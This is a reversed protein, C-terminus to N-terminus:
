DPVVKLPVVASIDLWSVEVGVECPMALKLNMCPKYLGKIQEKDDGEYLVMINSKAQKLVEVNLFQIRTQIFLDALLM